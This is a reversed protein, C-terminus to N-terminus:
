NKNSFQAVHRLAFRVAYWTGNADFQFPKTSVLRMPATKQANETLTLRQGAVADRVRSTLAYTSTREEATSRLSKALCAAVWAQEDEYNTRLVDNMPTFDEGDFYVLVTPKVGEIIVNGDDDFTATSMAVIVVDNGLAAQLAGVVKAEVDELKLQTAM